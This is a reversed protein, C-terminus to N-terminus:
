SVRSVAECMISLKKVAIDFPLMGLGCDPSIWLREPDIYQLADQIRDVINEVSELTVTSINIVGLILIKKQFLPLLKKLDNHRHADEISISDVVSNDLVKAITQYSEIKAKPYETDELKDPYGCCIHLSKHMTIGQFCEELLGPGYLLTKEPYRALVPEDLQVHSCGGQQLDHMEANIIRAIDTMCEIQTTYHKDVVTDYITMPGPLTYKLQSPNATKQSSIQWDKRACLNRVSLKDRIVPLQCTYANNRLSKKELQDFDINNWNRIIFHIYNERGIEGNTFIDVGSTEQVHITKEIIKEVQQFIM